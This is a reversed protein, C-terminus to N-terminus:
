TRGSVRSELIGSSGTAGSGAAVEDSKDISGYDAEYIDACNRCLVGANTVVAGPKRSDCWTCGTYIKVM